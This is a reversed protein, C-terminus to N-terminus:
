WPATGTAVALHDKTAHETQAVISYVHSLYDVGWAKYVTEDHQTRHAINGRITIYDDLKNAAQVSPMGQWHWHSSVNVLGILEEFLENVQNTKPTNLNGIWRALANARHGVLITRWGGDAIDWVRRSDKQEFLPRTAADRVKSPIALANPANALLFDFAEGALDEVYAEWCATIFVIAARNLVDVGHKRGPGEGVLTEHIEWLQNVDKQNDVFHGLAISPM